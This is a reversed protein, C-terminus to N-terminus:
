AAEKAPEHREPYTADALDDGDACDACVPYGLGDHGAAPLDPTLDRGCAYCCTVTGEM